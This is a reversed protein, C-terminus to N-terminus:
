RKQDLIEPLIGGVSGPSLLLHCLKISTLYIQSCCDKKVHVFYMKILIQAGLCISGHFILERLAGTLPWHHLSGQLNKIQRKKKEPAPCYLEASLFTSNSFGWLLCGLFCDLRAPLSYVGVSIRM